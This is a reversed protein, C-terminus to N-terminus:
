VLSEQIVKVPNGASSSQSQGLKGTGSDHSTGDDLVFTEGIFTRNGTEQEAMALTPRFSVVSMGTPIHVARVASETKNVHQGGSGSARLPKMVSIM